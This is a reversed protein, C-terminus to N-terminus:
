TQNRHPNRQTSIIRLTTTTKIIQISNLNTSMSTRLTLKSSKNAKSCITPTKTLSNTQVTNNNTGSDSTPSTTKTVMISIRTQCTGSLSHLSKIRKSSDKMSWKGIQLTLWCMSLKTTQRRSGTHQYCTVHVRSLCGLRQCNLSKLVTNM